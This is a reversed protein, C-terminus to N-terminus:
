RVSRRDYSSRAWLYSASAIVLCWAVALIGNTGIPTGILLGRVTEIIPTFPQYRAFWRIGVPMSRTPVFASGLFPLLFLFMPSNSATEVSRANTGLAVALWTVAFAALTLVAITALWEAANATPRFGIAISAGLVVTLGLITQIMAGAVHGSLVAARSIAM